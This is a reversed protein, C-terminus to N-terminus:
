IFVYIVALIVWLVIGIIFSKTAINEKNTTDQYNVNGIWLTSILYGIMLWCFVLYWPVFISKMLLFNKESFLEEGRMYIMGVVITLICFFGKLIKFFFTMSYSCLLNIILLIIRFFILCFSKSIKRCWDWNRELKFISDVQLISSSLVTKTLM